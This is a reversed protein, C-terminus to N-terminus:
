RAAVPSANLDRLVNLREGVRDGQQQVEQLTRCLFEKFCIITCTPEGIVLPNCRHMPENRIFSLTLEQKPLYKAARHHVNVM